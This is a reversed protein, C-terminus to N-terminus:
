ASLVFSKQQRQQQQWFIDKEALTRLSYLLRSRKDFGLVM